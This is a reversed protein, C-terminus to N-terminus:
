PLRAPGNTPNYWEAPRCGAFEVGRGAPPDQVRHLRKRSDFSTSDVSEPAFQGGLQGLLFHNPTLVPEDYSNSSQYTLPRSNILNEAGTFATMLEEDNM